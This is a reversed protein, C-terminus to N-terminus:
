SQDDEADAEMAPAASEAQDNEMLCYSFRIGHAAPVAFSVFIGLVLQVIWVLSLLGAYSMLITPVLIISYILILVIAFDITHPHNLAEKDEGLATNTLNSSVLSYIVCSIIVQVISFVGSGQAANPDNIDVLGVTSFVFMAVFSAIAIIVGVLLFKIMNVVAAVIAQGVSEFAIRDVGLAALRVWRNFVHAFFITMALVAILLPFAIAGIADIDSALLKENLEQLGAQDIGGVLMLVVFVAVAVIFGAIMWGISKLVEMPYALPLGVAKKFVDITPFNNEM